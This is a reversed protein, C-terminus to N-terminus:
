EMYILEPIDRERGYLFANQGFQKAIKKGAELSCGLILFSAEPPWVRDDGIGWGPLIIWGQDKIPDKIQQLLETNAKQNRKINWHEEAPNWATLYVWEKKQNCFLLFDLQPNQQGARIVIGSTMYSTNQYAQELEKSM